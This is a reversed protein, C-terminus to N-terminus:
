SRVQANYPALVGISENWESWESPWTNVLQQVRETIEEVEANNYYGLGGELQEDRGQATYFSLCPISPHDTQDGRAVLENGYFCGSPFDLLEKYCRYNETM